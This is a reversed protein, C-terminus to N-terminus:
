NTKSPESDEQRMNMELQLEAILSELRARDARADLFEKEHAAFTGLGQTREEDWSQRQEEWEGQEARREEERQKMESQLEVVMLELHTRESRANLLEKNREEVLGSGQTREEDWSQREEEREEEREKMCQDNQIAREKERETEKEGESRIFGNRKGEEETEKGDKRQMVRWGYGEKEEERVKWDEDM